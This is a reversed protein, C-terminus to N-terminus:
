ENEETLDETEEEKVEKAKLAFGYSALLAGILRSPHKDLLCFFEKLEEDKVNARFSKGGNKEVVKATEANYTAIFEGIFTALDLKSKSKNQLEQALGYRIEFKRTDKPTYQLSVTSKRIAQAVAEFGKNAIIECLNLSQNDMNMYFLNLTEIKFPKIYYQDKDLAQMLYVSYWNCFKFFSQLDGGSLFNRYALLGQIADGQEKISSIISKQSNLIEIWENASKRDNIEIFEPVELFAINAVAKNQGLDKQYVSHIGNITNKLKGTFEESRQIFNVSFNLINLIDLKVPSVSKLHRKFELMLEKAKSWLIHKYEPVFIKLDYSSGVKVYQCIMMQLAGSIKMLEQVWYSDLNTMNANNAKYQNLGKGQNPSYLQQATLKEDIKFGRNIKQVVNPITSYFTLIENLLKSFQKQNNHLISHAKVYGTYPNGVMNKYVDFAEDLKKGFESEFQNQLTRLKEKKEEASLNKDTSIENKRKKIEDFEKKQNPYDYFNNGIDNPVQTNAEKKLFKIVQFYSLKLLMEETISQSPKIQYYLGKDFIEVKRNGANSRLLIEDILNALGYAELTEAYTNSNKDIFFEKYERPQEM